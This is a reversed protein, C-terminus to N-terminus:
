EKFVKVVRYVEIVKLAKFVKVLLHEM